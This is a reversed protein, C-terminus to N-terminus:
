HVQILVSLYSLGNRAINKQEKRGSKGQDEKGPQDTLLSYIVEWLISDVGFLVPQKPSFGSDRYYSFRLCDM